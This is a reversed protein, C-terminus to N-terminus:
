TSGVVLAQCLLEAESRMTADSMLEGDLKVHQLLWLLRISFDGLGSVRHLEEIAQQLNDSAALQRKVKGLLEIVGSGDCGCAVSQVHDLIEVIFRREIPMTLFFLGM